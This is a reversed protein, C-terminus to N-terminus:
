TSMVQGGNIDILSGTIFSANKSVLFRVTRSVDDVEGHRRVPIEKLIREREVPTQRESLLGRVRETMIAGPCVANVTIGHPGFEQALQLTLSHIAGKVAVYNAGAFLSGYRGAKSGLNVIRGYNASVMGPLVLRCLRVTTMLNLDILRNWDDDSEELFRFPTHLSGGANNVLIQPPLTEQLLKEYAERLLIPDVLDLMAIGIQYGQSAFEEKMNILAAEDSDWIWVDAGCKALELAIGRGLGRAGATVLAVQGKLSYEDNTFNNM